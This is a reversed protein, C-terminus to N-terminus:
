IVASWFGCMASRDAIFDSEEDFGIFAPLQGAKLKDRYSPSVYIGFTITAMRRAVLESDKPTGYRLAVDARLLFAAKPV